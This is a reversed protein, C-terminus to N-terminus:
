KDQKQSCRWPHNAGPRKVKRPGIRPPRPKRKQNTRDRKKRAKLTPLPFVLKIGRVAMAYRLRDTRGFGMTTAILSVHMGDAIMRQLAERFGEGTDLTYDPVLGYRPFPDNEPHKALLLYFYDRNYGLARATDHRSLDQEAFDRVLDWFPMGWRTEIQDRKYARAM